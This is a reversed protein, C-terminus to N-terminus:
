DHYDSYEYRHIVYLEQISKYLVIPFLMKGYAIVLIELVCSGSASGTSILGTSTRRHLESALSAIKLYQFAFSPFLVPFSFLFIRFSLLQIHLFQQPPAPPPDSYQNDRLM